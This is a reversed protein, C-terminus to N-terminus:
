FAFFHENERVFHLVPPLDYSSRLKNRYNLLNIFKDEAHNVFLWQLAHHNKQSALSMPLPPQFM